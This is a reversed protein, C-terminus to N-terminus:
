SAGKTNGQEKKHELFYIKEWSPEGTNSEEFDQLLKLSESCIIHSSCEELNTHLLYHYNIVMIEPCGIPGM